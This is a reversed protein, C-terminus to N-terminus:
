GVVKYAILDYARSTANRGWWWNEARMPEDTEAGGRTRVHVLTEPAVPCEGGDWTIWGDADARPFQTRLQEHAARMQENTDFHITISKKGNTLYRWLSLPQYGSM